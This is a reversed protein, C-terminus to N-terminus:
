PLASQLCYAPPQLRVDGRGALNNLAADVTAMARRLEETKQVLALESRELSHFQRSLARLLFLSCAVFLLTGAGIAIAQIRWTALAAAESVGVDVVLPYDRLPRVAALRVVGDIRSPYRYNGGGQAVLQYWPSDAPMKDYGPNAPDPYRVIVSGDRHSLKFSQDALAAVAEYSKQFYSLRVGVLVVGLFSNHADSM